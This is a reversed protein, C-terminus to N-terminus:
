SRCSSSSSSSADNGCFVRTLYFRDVHVTLDPDYVDDTTYVETGKSVIATVISQMDERMRNWFMCGGMGTKSLDENSQFVRVTRDYCLFMVTM